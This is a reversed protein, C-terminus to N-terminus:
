SIGAGLLLQQVGRYVGVDGATHSDTSAVLEAGAALAAKLARSGPCLWKENVEILTGTRAAASAWVSLHEDSLDDESLGIKPLISFCHALQASPVSEMSAVLAGILLDVADTAAMGSEIRERTERPSWPGDTGPFQHDAILVADIGGAGFRLSPPVDLRGSADLIKVEVGTIVTMGDPVTLERTARLFDPLWPTSERVHDVLRLRTLGRAHAASVNEALTSAADDSFTSHVHHDGKLLGAATM